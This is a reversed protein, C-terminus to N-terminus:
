PRSAAICGLVQALGARWHQPELGLAVRELLGAAVGLEGIAVSFDYWSAAGADSWHIIQPLAAEAAPELGVGIARWCASALIATSTAWRTPWWAM